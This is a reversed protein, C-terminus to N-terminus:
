LNLGLALVEELQDHAERIGFWAVDLLVHLDKWPANQARRQFLDNAFICTWGAHM